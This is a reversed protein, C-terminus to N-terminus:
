QSGSNNAGATKTDKDCEYTSTRQQVTRDRAGLNKGLSSGVVRSLNAPVCDYSESTMTTLLPKLFVFSPYPMGVAPSYLRFQGRYVM